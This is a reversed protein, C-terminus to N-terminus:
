HTSHEDVEYYDHVPLCVDDVCLLLTVHGLKIEKVLDKFQRNKLVNFVHKKLEM